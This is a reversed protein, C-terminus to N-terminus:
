GRKRLSGFRRRPRGAAVVEPVRDQGLIQLAVQELRQAVPGRATGAVLPVGENVARLFVIPDYPVEADITTQLSRELDDLRLMDSAFIHNLAFFRREAPGGQEVLIDLLARVARVCPIEPAVVLVIRDSRDFVTLTREDLTSGSDIFVLDYSLLMAAILREVHEQGIMEGQDPRLPAGFVALGSAHHEAYGRLLEADALAATDRALEVVSFHPVLNVHTAVQGWELDLDILAVSRDGKAAAAVASNVALTTTGVGGKPSFFSVVRIRTAAPSQRTEGGDGASPPRMTTILGDIRARLEDPDFGQAMVDDAGAELMRVREEVDDSQAIGLVPIDALQPLSKIRVVARSADDAGGVRDVVIVMAEAARSLAESGFPAVVVRYGGPEIMSALRAAVDPDGCILLVMMPETAVADLRALSISARNGKLEAAHLKPRRVVSRPM